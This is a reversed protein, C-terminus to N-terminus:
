GFRFDGLERDDPDCFVPEYGNRIVEGLFRPHGFGFFHEICFDLQLSIFCMSIVIAATSNTPHPPEFVKVSIIELGQVQIPM